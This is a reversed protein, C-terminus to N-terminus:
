DPSANGQGKPLGVGSLRIPEQSGHTYHRSGVGVLRPKQFSELTDDWPKYNTLSPLRRQLSPFAQQLLRSSTGKLYKVLRHIGFHPDCGVLLRVHDPM